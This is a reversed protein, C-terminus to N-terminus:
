ASFADAEHQCPGDSDLDDSGMELPISCQVREVDMSHHFPGCHSECSADLQGVVSNLVCVSLSSTLFICIAPRFVGSKMVCVNIIEAYVDCYNCVALSKYAGASVRLGVPL